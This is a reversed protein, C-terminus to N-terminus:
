GQVKNKKQTGAIRSSAGIIAAVILIANGTGTLNGLAHLFTEVTSRTTYSASFYNETNILNINFFANAIMIAILVFFAARLAGGLGPMIYAETFKGAAQLSTTQKAKDMRLFIVIVIVLLTLGIKIVVHIDPFVWSTLGLGLGLIDPAVKGAM